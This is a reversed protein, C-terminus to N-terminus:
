ALGAFYDTKIQHAAIGLKHLTETLSDVMSRPGSIYFLCNRYDPLASRITQPSLRGVQGKWSSPLNSNDTVSYITRIGLETQDREFVDKYVFDNVTAATYFL